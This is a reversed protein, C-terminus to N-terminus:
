KKAGLESLRKQAEEVRKNDIEHTTVDKYLEIARAREILKEYLKAARMRADLKTKTDWQFCREFYQAARAYMRYDKSEYIDGLQYGTDSIKDSTPYNSLLQQLLLEARRMNDVRENAAWGGKDKFTMARRYLENAEPINYIGQLTPPPVDLELIYAQKTMRHFQLLEEEAWRAREIDGTAIYHGRLNELTIQYERRSALLREVMEVDKTKSGKDKDKDKDKNATTTTPSPTTGQCAVFPVVGFLVIPLAFALYRYQM